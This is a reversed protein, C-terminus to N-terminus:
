WPMDGERDFRTENAPTLVLIRRARRLRLSRKDHSRPASLIVRPFPTCDNSGPTGYVTLALARVRHPILFGERALALM